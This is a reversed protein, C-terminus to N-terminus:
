VPLAMSEMRLWLTVTSQSFDSTTSKYFFSFDLFCIGFDLLFVPKLLLYDLDPNLTIIKIVM